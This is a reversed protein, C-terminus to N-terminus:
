IVGAEYLEAIREASYGLREGYIAHNHQGLTPAPIRVQWPTDSFRYPAGPVSVEGMIPHHITALFERRALQPSHVAESMTNVPGIPIHRAQGERFIEEKTKDGFWDSLMFSIVDWNQTMGQTGRYDIADLWEPNGMWEQLRDWQDPQTLLLSVYGDKCPLFKMANLRPHSRSWVVNGDYFYDALQPALAAILTEQESVDVQQGKGYTDRDLLAAMTAGAANAGSLGAVQASQTHLPPEDEQHAGAPTLVAYGSANWLTLESGKWGAHQGTQGYPSISTVVLEPFREQLRAYNLELTASRVAGLSEVLVDACALLKFLVERGSPREIDLAVGLKNSNLYLFMGSREAGAEGQAFPPLSRAPDGLGPPEVKIVEAGLDALLKACYAGAPDEGLEVASLGKLPGDSM